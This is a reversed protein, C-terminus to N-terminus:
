PFHCTSFRFLLLRSISTSGEQAWFHNKNPHEDYVSVAAVKLLYLPQIFTLLSKLVRGEFTKTNKKRSLHHTKISIMGSFKAQTFLGEIKLNLRHFETFGASKNDSKGLLGDIKVFIKNSYEHQHRYLPDLSSEL